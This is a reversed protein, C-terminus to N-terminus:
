DRVVLRDRGLEVFNATALASEVAPMTCALLDLRADNGITGTAMVRRRRPVGRVLRSHVVDADETVLIRGTRDALVVLEADTTRHGKPLDLTHM